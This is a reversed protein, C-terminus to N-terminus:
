AGLTLDEGDLQLNEGDLQLVPEDGGGGGGTDITIPFTPAFINPRIGRVRVKITVDSATLAKAVSVVGTSSNVSFSGNADDILQWLPTGQYAAAIALTGVPDGINADDAIESGSFTICTSPLVRAAMLEDTDLGEDPVSFDLETGIAM